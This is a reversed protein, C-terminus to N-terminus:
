FDGGVIEATAGTIVRQVPDSVTLRLVWDRAAGLQNWICRQTYKGIAGVSAFGASQFSNGGDKSYELEAVPNAGQGTATGVGQEFDIQVRPIGLYKDANWIHESQVMMVLPDMGDAYTATDLQYLNASHHDSVILKNQFDAFKTGIFHAHGYSALETWVKSAGDYMLTLDADPANVVYMPHGDFTFAYGTATSINDVNGLLTDIDATSFRQLRFGSLRAAMVGGTKNKFLGALTNDYKTLSWAAALGFEQASSPILAFPFDPSGTDQWFECFDAGFLNMISHDSIGAAINGPASGTFNINVAPWTSPDSNSSLQWQNSSGATVIFYTDQWTVTTPSTTFNGDTIKTLAGPTVMNYYYGFKGDVIVLYTGNDVMSVNGLGATADLYGILSTTTGDSQISILAQNQVVFLLPTTLTNVAWMGRTPNLGLTNVFTRLGPRGILVYPGKEADQRREVYCNVRRQASISRAKSQYGVGFLNVQAM